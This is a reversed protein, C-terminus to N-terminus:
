GGVHLNRHSVVYSTENVVRNEKKNEQEGGSESVAVQEVFADNGNQDGGSQQGEITKGCSCRRVSHRFHLFEFLNLRCASNKRFIMRFEEEASQQNGQREM